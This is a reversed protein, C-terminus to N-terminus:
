FTFVNGLVGIAVTTEKKKHGLRYTGLKFLYYDEVGIEGFENAVKIAQKNSFSDGDVLMGLDFDLAKGILDSAEDIVYHAVEAKVEKDSPALIVLVAAAFAYFIIDPLWSWNIRSPEEYEAVDEEIIIDDDTTDETEVPAPKVAPASPIQPAGCKTCFKQNEDVEAGCNRCYM